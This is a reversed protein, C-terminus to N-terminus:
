DRRKWVLALVVLVIVPASRIKGEGRYGITLVVLRCLVMSGLVMGCIRIVYIKSVSRIVLKIGATALIPMLWPLIWVVCRIINSIITLCIGILGPVGLM